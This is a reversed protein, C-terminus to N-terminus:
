ETYYDEEEEEVEQFNGEIIEPVPVGALNFYRVAQQRGVDNELMDFTVKGSSILRTLRGEMTNIIVEQPEDLGLIRIRRDACGLVINLFRPDGALEDTTEVLEIIAGSADKKKVTRTVTGISREWAEWAEKETKVLKRLQKEKEWQVPLSQRMKFEEMINKIDQSITSQSVGLEVAIEMQTMDEEMYMKAVIARRESLMLDKQLEDRRKLYRGM